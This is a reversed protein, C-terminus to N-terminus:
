YMKMIRVRCRFKDNILNSFNFGMLPVKEDDNLLWRVFWM